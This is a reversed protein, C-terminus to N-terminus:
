STMTSVSTTTKSTPAMFENYDDTDFDGDRIANFLSNRTKGNTGLLIHENADVLAQM